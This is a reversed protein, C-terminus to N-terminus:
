ETWSGDPWTSRARGPRRGLSGTECEPCEAIMVPKISKPRATGHPSRTLTANRKQSSTGLSSWAYGLWPDFEDPDSQALREHVQAAWQTLLLGDNPKGYRTYTTGLEWLPGALDPQIIEPKSQMLREYVQVARQGHSLAENPRGLEALWFGLNSLSMALWLASRNPDPPNSQVVRDRIEVAQRMPPLGNDPRHLQWYCVGLNHLARALEPEFRDPNSRALREYIQVARQAYPLAENPRGLESLWTCLNSLSRGHRPEFRDPNSQALRGLIQVARRTAPLGRDARQSTGLNHLARALAPEFRDPNSIALREYLQVARQEHPLADEPRDTYFLGLNVLSEALHPEFQDPDSAALREFIQVARQAAPRGERPRGVEWLRRGLNSLSGALDPEFRDPETEALREYVEVARQASPLADGLRGVDALYVSLDSLSAALEESDSDDRGLLGVHRRALLAATPAMRVSPSPVAALVAAHEEPSDPLRRALHDALARVREQQDDNRAPDTAARSLVTMAQVAQATTLGELLAGVRRGAHKNETLVRVILHEAVRDPTLPEVWRGADDTPTYTKRLWRAAASPDPQVDETFTGLVRRALVVAAPEDEIGVLAAAAVLTQRMAVTLRDAIDSERATATWYTSAEHRLLEDFVQSVTIHEVEGYQNTGPQAIREVSALVAVLAAATLDLVRPRGDTGNWLVEPAPVGLERAYADCAADLIERPDAGIDPLDAGDYGATLAAGLNGPVATLIDWWNGATRALMLVRITGQDDMAETLFERLDPRNEAYDIVVLVPRDSAHARLLAVAGAERGQEAALFLCEWGADLEHLRRQLEDALRTKGVGGPGTILRFTQTDQDSSTCWDLLEDLLDERGVFPVIQKERHPSLLAAFSVPARARLSEVAQAAAKSRAQRELVLGLTHEAILGVALGGITALVVLLPPADDPVFEAAVAGIVAAIVLAGLGLAPM